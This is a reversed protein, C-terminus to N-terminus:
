ATGRSRSYQGVIKPPPITISSDLHSPVSEPLGVVAPAEEMNVQIYASVGVSAQGACAPQRSIVDLVKAATMHPASSGQETFVACWGPDHKVVHGLVVVRGKYKKSKKDSESNELHCQTRIKAFHVRKSGKQVQEIVDQKSKVKSEQWAPLNKLKDWEKDVAAKAELNEM